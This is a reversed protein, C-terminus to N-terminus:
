GKFGRQEYGVLRTLLNIVGKEGDKYKSTYYCEGLGQGM